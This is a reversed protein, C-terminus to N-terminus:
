KIFLPGSRERLSAASRGWVFKASERIEELSMVPFRIGQLDECRTYDEERKLTETQATPFFGTPEEYEFVAMFQGDSVIREESIGLEQLDLGPPCAVWSHPVGPGIAVLTNPPIVYVGGGLEALAVGNLTVIKEVVYRKSDGSGSPALHVHRPMRNETTFHFLGAPGSFCPMRADASHGPSLICLEGPVNAEPPFASRQLAGHGHVIQTGNELYFGYRHDTTM